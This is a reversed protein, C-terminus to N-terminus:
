LGGIYEEVANKCDEIGNKGALKPYAGLRNGWLMLDEWRAGEKYRTDDKFKNPKLVTREYVTLWYRDLDRPEYYGDPGMVRTALIHKVWKKPVYVGMCFDVKVKRDGIEILHTSEHPIRMGNKHYFVAGLVDVMGVRNLAIFEIDKKAFITHQLPAGVNLVVYAIGARHLRSFVEYLVPFYGPQTPKTTKFEYYLFDYVRDFSFTRWGIKMYTRIEEKSTGFLYKLHEATSETGDSSHICNVGALNRLETKIPKNKKFAGRCVVVLFSTEDSQAAIKAEITERTAPAIDTYIHMIDRHFDERSMTRQRIVDVVQYEHCLRELIERTKHEGTQLIMFSLLEM